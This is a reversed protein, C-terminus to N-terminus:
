SASQKMNVHRVVALRNHRAPAPDSCGIGHLLHRVPQPGTVSKSEFYRHQILFATSEVRPKSTSPWPRYVQQLVRPPQMANTPTDMKCEVALSAPTRCRITAELCIRISGDSIM